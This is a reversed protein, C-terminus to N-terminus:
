VLETYTRWWTQMDALAHVGLTQLSQALDMMPKDGEDKLPTHSGYDTSYWDELSAINNYYQPLSQSRDLMQVIRRQLCKTSASTEM